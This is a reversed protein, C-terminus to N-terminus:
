DNFQATERVEFHRVSKTRTERPGTLKIFYNTNPPVIVGLLV